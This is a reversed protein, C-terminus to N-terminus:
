STRYGSGSTELQQIHVFCQRFAYPSSVEILLSWKGKILNFIKPMYNDLCMHTSVENLLSWKGKILKFITPMNYYM